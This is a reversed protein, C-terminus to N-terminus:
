RVQDQRTKMVSRNRNEIIKENRWKWHAVNPTLQISFLFLFFELVNATSLSRSRYDINILYNSIGSLVDRARESQKSQSLRFLRFISFFFSDLFANQDIWLSSVFQIPSPHFCLPDFVSFFLQSINRHVKRIAKQIVAAQSM